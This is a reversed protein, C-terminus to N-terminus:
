NKKAIENLKDFGAAVSGKLILFRPSEDVFLLVGFFTILSPAATVCLFVRWSDTEPDSFVISAIVITFVIGYVLYAQLIIQGRSRKKQLSYKM